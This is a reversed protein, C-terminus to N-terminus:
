SPKPMTYREVLLGQTTRSMVYAHDGHIAFRRTLSDFGSSRLQVAAARGNMADTRVLQLTFTINGDADPPGEILVEFWITAGDAVSSVVGAAPRAFHHVVHSGTPGIGVSGDPNLVTDIWATPSAGALLTRTTSDFYPYYSNDIVAYVARNLSQWVFQTNIPTNSPVVVPGFAAATGADLDVEIASTTLDQGIVEFQPVTAVGTDGHIVVDFVSGTGPLAVARAGGGEIISLRRNVRDLVIPSDTRPDIAISTPQAIEGDGEPILLGVEGPGDGWPLVISWDPAAPSTKVLVPEDHEAIPVMFQFTEAANGSGDPGRVVARRSSGASSPAVDLEAVWESSTSDYQMPVVLGDDFVM